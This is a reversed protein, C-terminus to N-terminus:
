TNSFMPHHKEYAKGSEDFAIGLKEYILMLASYSTICHTVDVLTCYKFNRRGIERRYIGITPCIWNGECMLKYEYGKWAFRMDNLKRLSKLQNNVFTKASSYNM